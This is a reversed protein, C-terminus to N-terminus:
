KTGSSARIRIFFIIKKGDLDAPLELRNPVSAYHSGANNCTSYEPAVPSGPELVLKRFLDRAASIDRNASNVTTLWQLIEEISRICGSDGIGGYPIPFGHVMIIGGQFAALLRARAAVFDAAYKATGVEALKSVSTLVVISGAPVVFGRTAELFADSLEILSANEIRL